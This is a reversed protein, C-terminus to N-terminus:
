GGADCIYLVVGHPSIVMIGNASSNQLLTLHCYPGSTEMTFFRVSTQFSELLGNAREKEDQDISSRVLYYHCSFHKNAIGASNRLGIQATIHDPESPNNRVVEGPHDKLRYSVM